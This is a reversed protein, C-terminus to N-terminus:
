RSQRRSKMLVWVAFARRDKLAVKNFSRIAREATDIQTNVDTRAFMVTPEYDANHRSEQLNVFQNGFDEIAKPFRSM